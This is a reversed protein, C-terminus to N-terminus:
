RSSDVNSFVGLTDPIGKQDRFNFGSNERNWMKALTGEISNEPRSKAQVFHKMAKQKTKAKNTQAPPLIGGGGTKPTNKTKWIKAVIASDETRRM